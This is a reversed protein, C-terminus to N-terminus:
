RARRHPIARWVSAAASRIRGPVGGLGRQVSRTLVAPRAWVPGPNAVAVGCGSSGLVAWSRGTNRLIVFELCSSAQRMVREQLLRSRSSGLTAEPLPLCSSQSSRTTPISSRRSARIPSSSVSTPPGHVELAVPEGDARWREFNPATMTWRGAQHPAPARSRATGARAWEFSNFAVVRPGNLDADGHRAPSSSRRSRTPRPTM